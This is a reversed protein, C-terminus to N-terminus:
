SLGQEEKCEAHIDEVLEDTHLDIHLKTTFRRGLGPKANRIFQEIENRYGAVIVVFKGADESMRTMLTEVAEKSTGDTYGQKDALGYAEDILLVGGM